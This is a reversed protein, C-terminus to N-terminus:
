YVISGCMTGATHNHGCGKGSSFWGGRKCGSATCTCLNVQDLASNMDRVDELYESATEDDVQGAVNEAIDNMDDTMQDLDTDLLTGLLFNLAAKDNSNLNTTLYELKAQAIQTEDMLQDAPAKEWGDPAKGTEAIYSFYEATYGDYTATASGNKEVRVRMPTEDAVDCCEEANPAPINGLVSLIENEAFYTYTGDNITFDGLLKGSTVQGAVGRLNAANAAAAAKTTSSGVVPIIISVLVAIIAIVIMMEILTFGKKNHKM